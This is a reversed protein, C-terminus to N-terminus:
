ADPTENPPFNKIWNPCEAREKDNMNDVISKIDLASEADFIVFEADEYKDVIAKMEALDLNEGFEVQGGVHIVVISYQM